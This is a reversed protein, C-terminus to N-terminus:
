DGKNRFLKKLYEREKKKVGIMMLLFFYTICFIAINVIFTVWSGNLVLKHVAFTILGTIILSYWIGRFISIYIKIMNFNFKVRYYINMCILVGLILSISTGVCAAFYGFYKTGFYTILANVMTTISLIIVRFGLLNKARLISLCVNVCLYFLSPIMLILTILYVDEFGEGLWLYIFERGLVIFGTLAAGLLAFQVRGVKIVLEKAKELGNEEQLVNTVSPLMVGSISTSLQEFMGFITLGMSYVTVASAGIVAGIVVNDLNGNVQNIISTLFMLATYVFSESFLSREFHDYKVRVKHKLFVWLIEVTLFFATMVFDILVLAMSNPYIYLVIYVLVIRCLLRILKVGNGFIFDNYGTIIGNIMNEVIHLIMSASLVIFLKQALGIQQTTFSNSYIPGIFFYVGCCIATVLIVVILTELFMLALFNPIEYEKKEARYKALYRTVTGGIGLDLVMLASSLAAITKYVGYEEQGLRSLIYPTIVMGYVANLVILIYSLTAGCVVQKSSNKNM